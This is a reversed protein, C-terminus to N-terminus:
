QKYYGHLPAIYASCTPTILSCPVNGGLPLAPSPDIMTPLCVVHNDKVILRYNIGVESQALWRTPDQPNLNIPQFRNVGTEKLTCLPNSLRTYENKIDCSPFHFLKKQCNKCGSTVGQGCVQGDACEGCMPCYPIYKYNPDRTLLRNLNFLDSETDIIPITTDYSIGQKGIWGSDPARCSLCREAYTPDLIYEVAATAQRTDVDLSGQDYKTRSWNGGFIPVEKKLEKNGFVPRREMQQRGLPPQQQPEALGSNLNNCTSNVYYGNDITTKPASTPASMQASYGQQNYVTRQRQKSHNLNM